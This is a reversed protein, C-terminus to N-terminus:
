KRGEGEPYLSNTMISIGDKVRIGPSYIAYLPLPYVKEEQIAKVSNISRNDKLQQVLVDMRPYESEVIVLFIIDPNLEVIEEYNIQSSTKVVLEGGVIDLINGALTSEGYTSIGKGQIEMILVRPKEQKTRKLEEARQIDRKMEGILREAVVERDVIKGLTSIYEFEQNLTRHSGKFSSEAYYTGVGRQNWFSMPKFNPSEFTSYWGLIFDPELLLTTEVDPLQLSKHPIKDYTSRYEDLIYENSPMGYAGVIKDGVGLALLTEISNQWIAIMRQPPKHYVVDIAHGKRDYQKVTKPYGQVPAHDIPKPEAVEMRCGSFIGLLGMCVIAYAIRKWNIM